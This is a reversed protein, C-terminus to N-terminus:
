FYRLFKIIIIFVKTDNSLWKESELEDDIEIVDARIDTSVIVIADEDEVNDEQMDVNSVDVLTEIGVDLKLVEGNIIVEIEDVKDIIITSDAVAGVEEGDVVDARVADTSVVKENEELNMNFGEVNLDEVKEVAVKEENVREVEEVAEKEVDVEVKVVEEVAGNLGWAGLMVVDDIPSLARVADTSVVDAFVANTSVVPSIAISENGGVVEVVTNSDEVVVEKNEVADEGISNEVGNVGNEVAVDSKVGMDGGDLSSHGAIPADFLINSGVDTKIDSM